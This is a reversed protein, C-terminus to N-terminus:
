ARPLDVYFDKFTRVPLGSVVINDICWSFDKPAIDWDNKPSPTIDHFYLIACEQRSEADSIATQLQEAYEDRWIPYARIDTGPKGDWLCSPHTARGYKYYKAVLNQYSLCRTGLPYAFSQIQTQIKQELLKKSNKLEAEVDMASLQKLCRHTQSHSGVEWGANTMERVQSFTLYLSSHVFRRWLRVWKNQIPDTILFLVGKLGLPQMRRFAETYASKYGDDFCIILSARSM